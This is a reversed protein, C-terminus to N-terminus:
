LIVEVYIKVRKDIITIIIKNFKIDTVYSYFYQMMYETLARKIVQADGSNSTRIAQFGFRFTNKNVHLVCPADPIQIDSNYILGVAQSYNKIVNLLVYGVATYYMIMINNASTGNALQVRKADVLRTRAEIWGALARFLKKITEM